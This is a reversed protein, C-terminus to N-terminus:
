EEEGGRPVGGGPGGGGPPGGAGSAMRQAMSATMEARTIAGDGDADAGKIREARDAPIEDASLVGDGNGDYNTFM